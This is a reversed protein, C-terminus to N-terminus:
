QVPKGKLSHLGPRRYGADEPRPSGRNVVESLQRRLCTFLLQRKFCTPQSARADGPAGRSLASWGPPAGRVFGCRALAGAACPGGARCSGPEVCRWPQRPREGPRKRAAPHIRAYSTSARAWCPVFGTRLIHMPRSRSVVSVWALRVRPRDPGAAPHAPLTFHSPHHARTEIPPRAITIWEPRPRSKAGAPCAQRERWGRPSPTGRRFGAVTRAISLGLCRWSPSGLSGAPAKSETTGSFGVTVGRAGVGSSM